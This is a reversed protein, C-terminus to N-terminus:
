TAQSLVSIDVELIVQEHPQFAPVPQQSSLWSLSYDHPGPEEGLPSQNSKRVTLCRLELLLCRLLALWFHMVDKQGQM